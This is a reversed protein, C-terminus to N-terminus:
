CHVTCSAPNHRRHTTHRAGAHVHRGCTSPAQHPPREPPRLSRHRAATTSATHPTRNTPQPSHGLATATSSIRSAPGGGGGATPRTAHRDCDCGGCAVRPWESVPGPWTDGHAIHPQTGPVRNSTHAGCDGKGKGPIEREEKKTGTGTGRAKHMRSSYLVAVIEMPERSMILDDCRSM